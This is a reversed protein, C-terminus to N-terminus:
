IKRLAWLNYNNNRTSQPTRSREFAAREAAQMRTYQGRTANLGVLMNLAISVVVDFKAPSRVGDYTISTTTTTVELAKGNEIPINTTTTNTTADTM